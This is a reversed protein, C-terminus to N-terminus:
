RAGEGTRNITVQGGEVVEKSGEAGSRSKFFLRHHLAAPVDAQREVTILVYM